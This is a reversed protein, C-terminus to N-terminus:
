EINQIQERIKEIEAKMEVVLRSVQVDQIKSGITNVERNMEQALFDLKRGVPDGSKLLEEMQEVHSHLRAIEEHIDARDAFIACEALIRTEDISKTEIMEHLRGRLRNEYAQQIAPLHGEVEELHKSLQDLLGNIDTGLAAGEKERMAELEDLAASAVLKVAQWFHADSLSTEEEILFVEKLSLLKSLSLDDPLNLTENATRLGNLYGEALSLDVKVPKPLSGDRLVSLSLEIKGRSFRSQVMSRLKEELYQYERPLRFTVELYRHNVSKTEVTIEFGDVNQRSRGYGTMSSLAVLLVGM